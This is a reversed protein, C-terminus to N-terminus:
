IGIKLIILFSIEDNEYQNENIVYGVNGQTTTWVAMGGIIILIVALLSYM